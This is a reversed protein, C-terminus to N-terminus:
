SATRILLHGQGREYDDSRFAIDDAVNFDPKKDQAYLGSPVLSLALVTRVLLRIPAM